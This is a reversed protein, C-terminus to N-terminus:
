EHKAIETTWITDVVRFTQIQEQVARMVGPWNRHYDHGCFIGGSRLLPIWARIDESVSAYDHKADLFIMDFSRGEASFREAADLSKTKIATVNDLHSLNILFKPLVDKGIEEGNIEQEETGLWTDICTLHGSTNEAIACSSRGLWSGVECIDTSKNASEALYQLEVINMWGKISSAREIKIENNVAGAIMRRFNDTSCGGSFHFFNPSTGFRQNWPVRAKMQLSGDELTSSVVYFLDTTEDLLMERQNEAARRNFWAQDLLGLDPMQEAWKLWEIISRPSGAVMGNNAYRWPSSSTFRLAIDPEPYCNREASVILAEPVKRFVEEKTGYFLVDWADTMVIREYSSFKTAVERMYAIRRLMSISNAGSALNQLPALYFEIGAAALQQEYEDIFGARHTAGAVVILDNM